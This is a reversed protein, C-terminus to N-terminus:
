SGVSVLGVGGGEGAELESGSVEKGMNSSAIVKNASDETSFILDRDTLEPMLSSGETTLIWQFLTILHIVESANLSFPRESYTRLSNM